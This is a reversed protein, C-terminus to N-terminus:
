YYKRKRKGTATKGRKGMRKAKKAMKRGKASKRYKKAMRKRKSRQKKYARSRKRRLPKNRKVRRPKAEDLYDEEEDVLDEEEDLEEEDGMGDDYELEIDEVIDMVDAAQEESLQEPDLSIVFEFLRDFMAEEFIPKTGFLGDDSRPGLLTQLRQLIEGAM